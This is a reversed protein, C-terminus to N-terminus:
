GRFGGLFFFFFKKKPHATHKKSSGKVKLTDLQYGSWGKLNDAIAARVQQDISLDPRNRPKKCTSADKDFAVALASRKSPTAM